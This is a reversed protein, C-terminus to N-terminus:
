QRSGVVSLESPKVAEFIRPLETNLLAVVQGFINQVETTQLYMYLVKHLKSIDGTM